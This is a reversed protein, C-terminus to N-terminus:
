TQIAMMYQARTSLTVDDRFCDVPTLPPEADLTAMLCSAVPHLFPSGFYVVSGCQIQIGHFHINSVSMRTLLDSLPRDDPLTARAEHREAWRQDQRIPDQLYKAVINSAIFM